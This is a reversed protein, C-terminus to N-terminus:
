FLTKCTCLVTHGVTDTDVSESNKVKRTVRAHSSIANPTRAKGLMSLTMACWVAWSGLELSYDSSRREVVVERFVQASNEVAVVM